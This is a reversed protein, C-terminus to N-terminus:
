LLAFVAQIQVDPRRCRRLRAILQGHEEPNVATRERMAAARFLLEVALLKRFVAHHEDGDVVTDACEAEKHMRLEIGFIGLADAAVVTNVILNCRDVPYVLINCRETAVRVADRCRALRCAAHAHLRKNRGIQRAALNLASNQLACAAEAAKRM